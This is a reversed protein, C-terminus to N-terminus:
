GRLAPSEKNINKTDRNPLRKNDTGNDFVHGGCQSCLLTIKWDTVEVIIKSAVELPKTRGCMCSGKPYEKVWIKSHVNKWMLNEDMNKEMENGGRIKNSLCIDKLPGERECFYGIIEIASDLHSEGYAEILGALASGMIEMLVQDSVAIYREDLEDMAYLIGTIYGRAGSDMIMNDSRTSKDEILLALREAM